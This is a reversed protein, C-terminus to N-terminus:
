INEFFDVKGNELHYYGGIIKIKGEKEMEALLPSEERIKRVNLIVNEIAVADVFSVNSTVKEGEFIEKIGKAAPKIKSLMETINGLETNDIAHVVAGCHNHGLVMILKAGAAFCAFEMSGLFDKNVFNGAIRGVFLDGLHAHFVDEVPVRSDLCSLIVAMPNQGNASDKIIEPNNRVTLEGRVFEGNGKKLIEIVADPTLAQQEAKTLVKTRMKKYKKHNRHPRLM